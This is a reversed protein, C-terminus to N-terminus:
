RKNILRCDGIAKTSNKHRRKNLNQSNKVGLKDQRPKLQSQSKNKMMTGPRIMSRKSKRNHSLNKNKLKLFRKKKSKKRNMRNLNKKTRFNNNCMEEAEVEEKHNNM